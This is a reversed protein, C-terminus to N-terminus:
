AALPRMLVAQLDAIGVPKTLHHDFGAAAAKRKDKEQGYGTLAVLKGGFGERRLMQAVEYGSMDPLGIDLVVADPSFERSKRVAEAGGYALAVRSGGYELLTGLGQAAAENDDVVLVRM